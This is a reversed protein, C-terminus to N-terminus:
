GHSTDPTSVTRLRMQRPTEFDAVIRLKGFLEGIHDPKIQIRGPVGDHKAHVLLALYLSQVTHLRAKRYLLAAAARHGMVVFPVSGRSQEGREVRKVATDDRHAVVPVGMMFPQTRHACRCVSASPCALEGSEHIVIGGVCMREHLAPQLAAWAEMHVKRGGTARPQVHDLAEEAVQSLLLQASADEAVDLFEEFRDSLVDIVVVALGFEKDPVTLADSM